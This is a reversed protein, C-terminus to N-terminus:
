WMILNVADNEATEENYAISQVDTCMSSTDADSQLRDTEVACSTTSEVPLNLGKDEAGPLKRAGSWMTDM